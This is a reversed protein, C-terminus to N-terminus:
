SPDSWPAPQWALSTVSPLARAIATWSRGADVSRLLTGTSTAAFVAGSLSGPAGAPAVVIDPVTGLEPETGPWWRPAGIPRHYFRTRPPPLPHPHPHSHSPSSTSEETAARVVAAALLTDGVRALATVVDGEIGYGDPQWRFGHDDSRVLGRETGALLAETEGVGALMCRIPAPLGETAMATWTRGGDFTAEIGGAAHGAYIVAGNSPEICLIRVADDRNDVAEAPSPVPLRESPRRTPASPIPTSTASEPASPSKSARSPKRASSSPAPSLPPPAADSTAADAVASQTGEPLLAARSAPVIGLSDLRLATWHDGYDTSRYVAAPEAGLYLLEPRDYRVVLVHPEAHLYREWTSGGDESRYVGDGAAAAHVRRPEDPDVVVARVDHGRWLVAATTWGAAAPEAAPDLHLALLGETTGLLLRPFASANM